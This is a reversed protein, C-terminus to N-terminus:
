AGIDRQLRRLFVAMEKAAQLDGKRQAIDIGREYAQIAQDRQGSLALAKAYLKWAASYDPDLETAQRLHEAGRAPDDAKLYANGLGFRLSASDQGAALLKEFNAIVDM